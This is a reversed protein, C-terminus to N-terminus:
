KLIIKNNYKKQESEINLFYLGSELENLNCTYFNSNISLINKLHVLQGLTNYVKMTMPSNIRKKFKFNIIRDESPNPYSELVLQSNYDNLSTSEEMTVKIASFISLDTSQIVQPNYDLIGTIFIDNCGNDRGSYFGDSSRLVLGITYPNLDQSFQVSSDNQQSLSSFYDEVIFEISWVSDGENTMLALEMMKQKSVGIELLM